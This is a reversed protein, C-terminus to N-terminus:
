ADAAMFCARCLWGATITGNSMDFATTRPDLGHPDEGWSQIVKGFCEEGEDFVKDCPGECRQDDGAVSAVVDTISSM